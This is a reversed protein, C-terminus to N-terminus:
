FILTLLLAKEGCGIYCRDWLNSKIKRTLYLLKSLAPHRTFLKYENEYCKIGHCNNPLGDLILNNVQTAISLTLEM